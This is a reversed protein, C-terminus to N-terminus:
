RVKNNGQTVPNVPDREGRQDPVQGARQHVRAYREDGRRQGIEREARQSAHGDVAPIAALDHDGRVQGADNRHEEDRDQSRDREPRDIDQEEQEVGRRDQVPRCLDRGDGRDHGRGLESGGVRERRHDLTDAVEGAVGEGANTDPEQTAPQPRLGAEGGGEAASREAVRERRQDQESQAQWQDLSRLLARELLDPLLQDNAQTEQGSMRDDSGVRRYQQEPRERGPDRHRQQDAIGILHDPVVLQGIRHQVEADAESAHDARSPQGEESSAPEARQHDGPESEHARGNQTQGARGHEPGSHQEHGHGADAVHHHQDGAHRDHM